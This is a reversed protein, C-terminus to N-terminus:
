KRLQELAAKAKPSFSSSPDLRIFKELETIAKDKQGTNSYLDAMLLHVKTAPNPRSHAMEGYHLAKEWLQRNAYSRSLEFPGEWNQADIEIARLLLREADEHRKRSTLLVALPYYPRVFQPNLEIAKEFAKQAEDYAKLQMEAVGFMFYAEYYDPFLRIAEQFFQVAQRADKKENLAQLGKQTATLAPQPISLARASIVGGTLAPADGQERNLQAQVSIATEGRRIDVNVETTRYGSKYVRLIYPQPSLRSFELRGSGDTFATQVVGEPFRTLEVKAQEIPQESGAETVRVAISVTSTSIQGLAPAMFFPTIILAVALTKHALPCKSRFHTRRLCDLNLM